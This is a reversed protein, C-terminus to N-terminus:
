VTTTNPSKISPCYFTVSFSLFYFFVKKKKKLYNEKYLDRIANFSFRSSPIARFSTPCLFFRKIEIFCVHFLIRISRFGNQTQQWYIRRRCFYMICKIESAKPAIEKEM